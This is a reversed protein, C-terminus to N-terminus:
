KKLAFKAKETPVFASDKKVLPPVVTPVVVPKSQVTASSSSVPAAPEEAKGKEKEAPVAPAPILGAKEKIKKEIQAMVDPHEKLFTKAAERGQGIKNDGFSLWTGSKDVVGM